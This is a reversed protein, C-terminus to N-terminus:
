TSSRAGIGDPAAAFREHFRSPGDRSGGFSNQLMQKIHTLLKSKGTGNAGLIVTVRGFQAQVHPLGDASGAVNVGFKDTM